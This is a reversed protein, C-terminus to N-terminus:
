EFGALGRRVADRVDAMCRFATSPSIGLEGAVQAMELDQVFYRDYVRQDREPLTEIAQRVQGIAQQRALLVEPNTEARGDIAAQVISHVYMAAKDSAERDVSERTVGPSDTTIMEDLEVLTTERERAEVRVLAKILKREGYTDRIAQDLTAGWTRKSSFTDFTGLSPDYRYAAEILALYGVNFLEARKTRRWRRALSAAQRGLKQLGSDVLRRQEPTLNRPSGVTM